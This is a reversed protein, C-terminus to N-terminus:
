ILPNETHGENITFTSKQPILMRSSFKSTNLTIADDGTPSKDDNQNVLIPETDSAIENIIHHNTEPLRQVHHMDDEHTINM